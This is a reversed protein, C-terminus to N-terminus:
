SLRLVPQGIRVVGLTDPIVNVGFLVQRRGLIKLPQRGREGTEQDITTVVCRSCPKAVRVTVDGLSLRGGIWHDEDWADTGSLVINPRFRTMPVTDHGAEVLWDNVADLSAATTLLIPFGDAFSVRDHDASFGPEVRRAGPDALWALRVKEGLLDSLWTDAAASAFRAATPPEDSFVRVTTPDGTPETVSLDARDAASLTVGGPYARPRLATLRPNNRQTVGVGDPDVVMWRRDGALGHPEVTAEDHDVRHCGKIPYTHLSTIEVPM